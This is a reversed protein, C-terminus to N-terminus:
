LRSRTRHGRPHSVCAGDRLDLGRSARRGPLGGGAAPLL